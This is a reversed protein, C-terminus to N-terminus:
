VFAKNLMGALAHITPHRVPGALLLKIDRPDADAYAGLQIVALDTRLDNVLHQLHTAYDLGDPLSVETCLLGLPQDSELIDLAASSGRVIQVAHGLRRLNGAAGLCLGLGDDVFLIDSSWATLSETEIITCFEVFGIQAAALLKVITETSPWRPKGDRSIRKSPNLATPDLGALVALKPLSWGNRRGLIEIGKWMMQHTYM